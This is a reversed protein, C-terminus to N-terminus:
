RGSKLSCEREWALYGDGRIELFSQIREEYYPIDICEREVDSWYGASILGRAHLFRFFERVGRLIGALEGITPELTSIIYWTAAFRRVQGPTDDLPNCRRASVVFDRLFYDAGHAHCGAELPETGRELLNRHFERVLDRCLGDVRVEDDDNTIRFTDKDPKMM